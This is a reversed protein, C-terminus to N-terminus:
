LFTLFHFLSRSFVTFYLSVRQFIGFTRRKDPGVNNQGRDRVYKRAFSVLEDHRGHVGIVGTLVYHISPKFPALAVSIKVLRYAVPESATVHEYDVDHVQTGFISILVVALIRFSRSYTIYLKWVNM